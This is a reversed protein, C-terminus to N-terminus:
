ETRTVTIQLQQRIFLLMVISKVIRGLYGTWDLDSLRGFDQSANSVIFSGIKGTTTTIPHWNSATGCLQSCTAMGIAQWSQYGLPVPIM